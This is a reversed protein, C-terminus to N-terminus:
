GLSIGGPRGSAGAEGAMWWGTPTGECAGEVRGVASTPCISRWGQDITTVIELEVPGVSPFFALFAFFTSFSFFSFPSLFLSALWWLGGLIGTLVARLRGPCWGSVLSLRWGWSSFSRVGSGDVKLTMGSIIPICASSMCRRSRRCGGCCCKSGARGM